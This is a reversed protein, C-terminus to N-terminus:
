EIKEFNVVIYTDFEQISGKKPWNPMARSIEQAEEAQEYTPPILFDYGHLRFIEIMNYSEIEGFTGVGWRLMSAGNVQGDSCYSDLYFSGKPRNTFIVPKQTDCTAELTTAIAHIAFTEKQYRSYDNYFWKNMDRIQLLILLSVLIYVPSKLIRNKEMFAVLLLAMVGVFLCCTQAARYMFEGAIFHVSFNSVFAGLFCFLLLVSKKSYAIGISLITGVVVSGWFVTMPLYDLRLSRDKINILIHKIVQKVGLGQTWISERVFGTQGSVRQVIFVIVYYFICAAILIAAFLFGQYVVMKWKLHYQSLVVAKILFLIFVTSVYLFVFSEYSSIGIICFVFSCVIQHSTHEFIALYASFVAIAICLYSLMTAVVDLNYIFKENIISFSLYVGAFSLCATSSFHKETIYQFMFCFMLASAWFLAVGIFDNLFPIFEVLGTLWNLVIHMLRGQQIMSGWGNTYLYHFSAPDDVGMSFNTIAFGYAMITILISGILLKKDALIIKKFLNWNEKSM